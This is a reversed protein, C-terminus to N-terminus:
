PLTRWAAMSFAFSSSADTMLGGASNSVLPCASSSSGGIMLPTAAALLGPGAAPPKDGPEAAPRKVGCPASRKGSGIKVGSFSSASNLRWLRLVGLQPFFTRVLLPLLELHLHPMRDQQTFGKIITTTIM